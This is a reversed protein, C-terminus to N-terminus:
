KYVEEDSILKGNVASIRTHETFPSGLKNCMNKISDYRDNRSLLNIVYVKDIKM